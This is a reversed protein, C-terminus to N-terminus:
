KRPIYPWAYNLSNIVYATVLTPDQEWWRDNPNVFSGNKQQRKAFASLLDQAWFRKGNKTEVTKSGLTALAKAFVHYFYYLGQQAAKPDKNRIGLGYNEELTYNAKIWALAAKIRADDKSVGTYIMSMLGGYTMSAYSEFSLTGDANKIMGSKNRSLGPDYIFGGDDKPKLKGVGPNTESSNQCRSLFTLARKFVPDDPKVGADRLAAIAMLTNSMDADPKKGGKDYGFGGFHPNDEAVGEEADFQDGKLWDAAKKIQEAYRKRDVAVLANIAIATRYTSLGSRQQTFSGDKQQHKLLFGIAKEVAPKAKAQFEKPASALGKIVLGTIGVEGPPQGPIQGFGGNKHQSKLLYSLAGDYVTYSPDLGYDVPKSAQALAPAAGLCTLALFVGSLTIRQM